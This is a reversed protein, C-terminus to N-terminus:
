GSTLPEDSADLAVTLAEDVDTSTDDVAWVDPQLGRESIDAGAPTLYRATTLKLAAGNGLPEISQVLAKGFTSEGVLLARRNDHLAAAVVEAASATFRNVLVVLPLRSTRSRAVAFLVQPREHAAQISVVPGRALFLSSVAVAQDLLGGPNDRLDLVLRTAGAAELEGLEEHLLQATGAAFSHLAIYGARRGEAALVLSTVASTRIEDRRVDVDLVRDGRLIGLRVVSGPRGLIRGLAAEFSLRRTEVGGIAIITDGALLGSDRAPGAPVASVIFGGRQPLVTAGIGSYSAATRRQLESYAFPELYETYPDGLGAIIQEIKKLRLLRQPVPKYYRRVLRDRVEAIESAAAADEGNAGSGTLSLGFLFSAATAAALALTLTARRM